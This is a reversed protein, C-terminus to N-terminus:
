GRRLKGVGRALGVVLGVGGIAAGAVLGIIGGTTAAAYQKTKAAALEQEKTSVMQQARRSAGTAAAQVLLTAEPSIGQTAPTPEVALSGHSRAYAQTFEGGFFVIQSSYYVYVLFALVGGVIGYSSFSSNAFYISMIQQGVVWLVGTLVGGVVVDGWEVKIDPLYKFLLMFVFSIIALNALFNIIGFLWEPGLNLAGLVANLATTLVTSVLLLFAVALVLGFSFVKARITALIGSPKNEKPVDWIVDFATDLQGFVGSATFLLSLFGIVASIISGSAMGESQTSLVNGIEQGFQPSVENSVYDVIQQTINDGVNTFFLVYTFISTIVLLLPILSGLTYFSLAAGIQLCNDDSWEQYTKKLIDIWKRM